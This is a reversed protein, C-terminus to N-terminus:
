ARGRRKKSGPHKTITEGSNRLMQKYKRARAQREREEPTNRKVARLSGKLGAGVGMCKSLREKRQARTEDTKKKRKAM